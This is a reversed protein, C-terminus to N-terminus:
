RQWFYHRRIGGNTPPWICIEIQYNKLTNVVAIMFTQSTM